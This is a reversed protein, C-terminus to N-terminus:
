GWTSLESVLEQARHQAGHRTHMLQYGRDAIWQLYEQRDLWGRVQGIIPEDQRVILCNVDPRFGLDAMEDIWDTLLATACAPIEFLKSLAYHYRSTCAVGIRAANIARAYAEGRFVYEVGPQERERAIRMFWPERGCAELVAQRVPYVNAHVAGTHLVGVTKPECYDRYIGLDLWYPLWMVRAPDLYPHFARQGERYLPLYLDFGAEAAARVYRAVMSGHNDSWIVAKRATIKDWAEDMFAYMCDTIVWDHENAVAPDIIQPLQEGKLTTARCVDVPMIGPCTREVHTLDVLKGVERRLPAYFDNLKTSHDISCWLVRM